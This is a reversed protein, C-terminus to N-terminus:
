FRNWGLLTGVQFCVPNTRIGMRIFNIEESNQDSTELLRTLEKAMSSHSMMIGFQDYEYIKSFDPYNDWCITSILTKLPVYNTYHKNKACMCADLYYLMKEISGEQENLISSAYIMRLKQYRELSRGHNTDNIGSHYFAILRNLDQNKDPRPSTWTVNPNFSFLNILDFPCVMQFPRYRLKQALQICKNHIQNNDTFQGIFKFISYLQPCINHPNNELEAFIHETPFKIRKEKLLKACLLPCSWIVFSVFRRIETRLKPNQVFINHGVIINVIFDFHIELFVNILNSSILFNRIYSIM